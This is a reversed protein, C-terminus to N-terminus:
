TGPQNFSAQSIPNCRTSRLGFSAGEREVPAEEEEEGDDDVVGVVDYLGLGCSWVGATGGATRTPM